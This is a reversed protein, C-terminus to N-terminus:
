FIDDWNGTTAAKAYETPRNEFFNTHEVGNIMGEIWPLPNDELKFINKLGIQKLRRGAIFRIYAKVDDATLRPLPGSQFVTDIFADELQVIREATSYISSKLADTWLSPNEEIYTKFVKTMGEVHLNEDRVSWSIIQGMNKMLNNRPFNLLIAFSSFLQVGETFASYVALSKAIDSPTDMNFKELFEHKDQMAKYKSFMKYESEPLGLTEILQSYADIHTAEMAAFQSMMMRIEPPKFTPLYHQCYGGAVDVDAQTFFRFIQTILLKEADSLKTNYDKIDDGLPVEEPTWHMKVQTKYIEYAWPYEFPKYYNRNELLM